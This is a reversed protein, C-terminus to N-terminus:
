EKRRLMFQDLTATTSEVQFALHSIRTFKTALRGIEVGELYGIYEGGAIIVTVFFDEKDEIPIPQVFKLKGGEAVYMLAVCGNGRSVSIGRDLAEFWIGAVGNGDPGRPVRLRGMLADFDAKLPKQLIVRKGEREATLSIPDGPKGPLGFLTPDTMEVWTGPFQDNRLEALRKDVKTRILGKASTSAQLYWYLARKRLNLRAVGSEKEALEWWGDAAAVWGEAASPKALDREAAAKLAPDSGKALRPLAKEWDGRLLGEQRGVILNSDPDSPSKALTDLAKSVKDRWSRREGTEKAKAEAKSTLPIDKAKRANASAEAAAKVAVDLLDGLLAEDALALQKRAIAGFDEPGKAAKSMAVYIALKASGTEGDFRRGTEEVAQLASNWDGSERALERAERLLVYRSAPDDDTQLAQSLMKRALAARDAPTKKALEEKYVERLLKEAEKQADPGPVPAKAQLLVLALLLPLM